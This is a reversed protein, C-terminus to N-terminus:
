EKILNDMVEQMKSGSWNAAGVQNIVIEGTKSVVFTVPISNSQFVEPLRYHNIYVPFTYGKKKIFAEVKTKDENSVMLFMVQANDKYRDYLEQIAPMEAVCPPCWTAWLNLFVVKGRTKSFEFKQGDLQEFVLHYDADQLKGATGQEEVTPSWVAVRIKNVFAMIEMRSQPILLAIIFAVFFIDSAISFKSKKSYYNKIREKITM